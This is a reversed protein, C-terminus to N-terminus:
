RACPSCSYRYSYLSRPGPLSTARRCPIHPPLGHMLPPYSSAAFVVFLPGPSPRTRTILTLSPRIACAARFAHYPYPIAFLFRPDRNLTPSCSTTEHRSLPFLPAAPCRVHACAYASTTSADRANPLPTNAPFSVPHAGATYSTPYVVIRRACCARMGGPLVVTTCLKSYSYYVTICSDSCNYHTSVTPM